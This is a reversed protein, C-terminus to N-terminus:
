NADFEGTLLAMTAAISELCHAMVYVKANEQEYVYEMPARVDLRANFATSRHRVAQGTGFRPVHVYCKCV